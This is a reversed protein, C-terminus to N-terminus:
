QEERQLLVLLVVAASGAFMFAKSQGNWIASQWMAFWEGGIAVFGLYYLLFVIALGVAALPKAAVFAQPNGRARFLGWAGALSTLAMLWEAAIILWYAAAQVAPDAIARYRLKNDAFVTDMSLVHRVFQWNSDYDLLNGAAVLAGWAGVSFVMLSKWLRINLLGTTRATTAPLDPNM